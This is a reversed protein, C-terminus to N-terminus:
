VECLRGRRGSVDIIDGQVSWVDMGLDASYARNRVNSICLFVFVRAITLVDACVGGICCCVGDIMVCQPLLDCCKM